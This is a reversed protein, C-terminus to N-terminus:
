NGELHTPSQLNQKRVMFDVLHARVIIFAEVVNKLLIM